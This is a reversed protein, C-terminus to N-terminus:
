NVKYMSIKRSFDLPLSVVQRSGASQLQWRALCHAHAHRPCNCPQVLNAESRPGDLCIWCIPADQLVCFCPMLNCLQIAPWFVVLKAPAKESLVWRALVATPGRRSRATGQSLGSTTSIDPASAKATRSSWPSPRLNCKQRCIRCRTQSIGM